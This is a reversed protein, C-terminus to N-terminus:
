LSNLEERTRVGVLTPALSPSIVRRLISECFVLYSMGANVAGDTVIAVTVGQLVPTVESTCVIVTTAELPVNVIVQLPCVVAASAYLQVASWIFTARQARELIM